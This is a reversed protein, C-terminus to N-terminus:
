PAMIRGPPTPNGAGFETHCANCDGSPVKTSMIREKQTANDVVKATIPFAPAQDSSFNGTSGVNATFTNGNADFITVTYSTANGNVGYCLDPEHATPYVTGAFGFSPAEGGKNQHCNICAEGPNMRSSEGGQWTQNSTCVPPTNYPDGSSSSSSSSSGACMDLPMGGQVWASFAAVQAAPPPSGPKPPMPSNPDNMRAVCRAAYTGGKPSAAMLDGPTVLPMPAGGSPPNSHCSQCASLVDTAATPLCMGNGGSSSSGSGSSSASSGSSSSGSPNCDVTPMGKNVWGVFLAIDAAGIEGGPPMPAQADQMRVVCRDAMKGGKASMAQLDGITMLPMPANAVPPNSHCNQCNTSLIRNCDSPLCQSGSSGSGTSGTSTAGGSGTGPGVGSSAGGSANSTGNQGLNPGPCGALAAVAAGLITVIAISQLRM